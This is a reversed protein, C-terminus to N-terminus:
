DFLSKRKPKEIIIPKVEEIKPPIIKDKMCSCPSLKAIEIVKAVNEEITGSLKFKNPVNLKEFANKAEKIKDNMMKETIIPQVISGRKIYNAMCFEIPYDMFFTYFEYKSNLAEQIGISATVLGEEFIINSTINLKDELIKNKFNFTDKKKKAEFTKYKSSQSLPDMGNRKTDPKWIGIASLNGCDCINYTIIPKNDINKWYDCQIGSLKNSLERVISTKGTGSTGYFKLYKSM